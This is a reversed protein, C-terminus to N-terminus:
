PSDHAPVHIVPNALRGLGEIEILLAANTEHLQLGSNGRSRGIARVAATLSNYVKIPHGFFEADGRSNDVTFSRRSRSSIGAYPIAVSHLVAHSLM